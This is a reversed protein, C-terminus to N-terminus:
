HEKNKGRTLPIRVVHLRQIFTASIARSTFNYLNELFYVEGNDCVFKKNFLEKRRHVLHSFGSGSHM